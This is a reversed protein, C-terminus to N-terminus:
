GTSLRSVIKLNLFYKWRLYTEILLIIYLNFLLNEEVLVKFAINNVTM